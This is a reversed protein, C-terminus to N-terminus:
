FFFLPGIGWYMGRWIIPDSGKTNPLRGIYDLAGDETVEAFAAGDAQGIIIFERGDDSTWGWSSSGEGTASGLEVHPVFYRLDINNCRFTTNIGSGAYGDVCPTYTDIKPYISSNFLGEARSKDFSTNKNKMIIRHVDGSVYKAQRAPNSIEKGLVATFFLFSLSLLKM